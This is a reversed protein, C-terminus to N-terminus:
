RAVDLRGVADEIEGSNLLGAARGPCSLWWFWVALMDSGLGGM